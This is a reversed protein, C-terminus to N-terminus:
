LNNEKVFKEVVKRWREEWLQRTFASHAMELSRRGMAKRLEQDEILKIMAEELDDVTTPILFGNYHDIVLNPLGGVTTAIIPVGSALAEICALSMGEMFITPALMVDIDQYAKYSDKMEYETHSVNNPYKAITAEVDKKAEDDQFQGVIRLETDPHKQVVRLYAELALKHGRSEEIRRPFVFVVKNSAKRTPKFVREDYCNPVFLIKRSLEYDRTRMWNVFNTDTCVCTKVNRLAQITLWYPNVLVSPLETLTKSLPGDFRVSHNIGICPACKVEMALELPSSIVFEAGACADAFVKSLEWLDSDAAKVGVVKIGRYTTEFDLNAGQLIRPEYGQSVLLQALDYIYREAGGKYVEKGDWDYFNVNIIDVRKPVTKRRPAEHIAQEATVKTVTEEMRKAPRIFHVCKYLANVLTDIFRYRKASLRHEYDDRLVQEEERLREIERILVDEM